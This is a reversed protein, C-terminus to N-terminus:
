RAAAGGRALRRLQYANRAEIDRALDKSRGHDAVHFHTEGVLPGQERIVVVRGANADTLGVGFRHAVDGLVATASARKNAGLPIYAEGGTAPEAFTVAGARTGYIGPRIGGNAYALGKQAKTLDSLFRTSRSGLSSKIQTAAKTAVAVIDDEGLGTTSAVDHIGTKSSKVAAIIQVLQALEESTLTKAATKASANAAKAKSSSKAAEAAIKQAADDGQGALQMALDGYGMAALKALNAQFTGSTKNSANLQKTYDALTAKALPALKRLNAVISNFQSKSAKALASVMSAGETGMDRLQDIVDSGGRSAIKALNAEYSANSKVASSLTKSWDSLSFTKKYRAEATRAKDTATALSRRAKAVSNEASVLQAHTHRHRRVQNLRAEASRLTDVANARARIAKNYDDKSISQHADGYSSQVDSVSKMTGTPTYSFGGSDFQQVHVGGDANWAVGKGGLRRVTEEAIARSRTRKSVALPIYAEGGTEDEAWVRWTGPRAIQAIHSERLGGNDYHAVDIGGDARWATEAANKAAQSTGGGRIVKEFVTRVTNTIIRGRLSDIQRQLSALQASQSTTPVSVVVTKGHVSVIKFGLLELQRRGEATPVHMTITKGHASAVKAKLGELDKVAGVTAADMKVEKGSPVASMQDIVDQLQDKAKKDKVIVEYERTGPILKITFGLDELKKKAGESLTDVRIKTAKPMRQFEAQVALLEALTSDVGKTQLLISVQGPILGMANAVGEAQKESLGYGRGLKIAADRAKQMEGQSAKLSDPLSKGQSQAFDYAAIAADSSGDAINNLTNFLGQGNKTATDIQGNARILAKGWGDSKKVGDTLADNAQTIAENVRAQAAQLNISGGSLLDLSARLARTRSDADGTKDALDAVAEKLRDYASVGDGGLKKADNLEKQASSAKKFNGALDNLTNAASGYAVSLQAAKKGADTDPGKSTSLKAQAAALHWMKDALKGMGNGSDLYADTVDRLSFGATKMTAALSGNIDKLKAGQITQAAQARVSEDVAGNSERLASTLNDIETQHQAAEAAAKQQASALLGLGVTVGAIALGWPGGMAGMLGGMASRLGSGAAAAVGRLTGTFGTAQSAAQRFAGTMRGIVPVRTELVAFAAGYRSLSQGASAALGRQVAMQQSLSQFAGTVRGRITNAVGTLPGQVRRFALMALVGAQVPGPLSGFASAIGGVVHGIPGLIGSLWGLTSLIADIAMTAIDIATALGSSGKALSSFGAIVPKLYDLYNSFIEKATAGISLLIHLFQALAHEGLDKLPRAIGSVSKGIESFRSSLAVGIEPGFLTAASNLYQFFKEIKPTAASLGKTIGRTMWEIGPAMGQYIALGTQRAQTKLGLMAGALGKGKAAAIDAASGSSKVAAMLADFSDVGQHAMAIAGSMAPKGMSKKVAAAFDQQTMNHQAKSLGDIVYRLGKFQGSADWAEIGMAKLGEIMQPTPAALNAMMGRLTTGATQGLIGAKGLMGVASATEEISVGLGHAVPGAYKMAYYIDKIDGSAANATSALTDAARSAQDAGMGFQDMIDGLYKASDAANVQAASALRLSAGTASIAQDTRFGAKALEVMAEAADGATAGPLSLDNGLQNATAAARKMQMQTAGTVAGFANMQQQYENGEKVMEGLGMVLAGGSLLAAMSRLQGHARGTEGAFRRMSAVGRAGVRDTQTAATRAAATLRQLDRVATTLQSRMRSIDRAANRSNSGLRDMNRQATRAADGYRGLNRATTRANNGLRQIDRAATRAERGLSRLNGRASRAATDLERVGTRARTLSQDLTRAHTASERLARALSTGNGRLDVSLNWNAM